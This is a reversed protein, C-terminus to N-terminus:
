IQTIRTQHLDPNKVTQCCIGPPVNKYGSQKLRYQAGLIFKLNMLKYSATQFFILCGKKEHFTTFYITVCGRQINLIM